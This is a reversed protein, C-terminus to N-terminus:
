MVFPLAEQKIIMPFRKQLVIWVFSGRLVRDRAFIVETSRTYWFFFVHNQETLHNWATRTDKQQVVEFDMFNLSTTTTTDFRYLNMELYSKDDNKRSSSLLKVVENSITKIQISENLVVSVVDEWLYWSTEMTISM